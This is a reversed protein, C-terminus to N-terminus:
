KGPTGLWYEDYDVETTKEHTELTYLRLVRGDLDKAEDALIRVLAVHSKDKYYKM